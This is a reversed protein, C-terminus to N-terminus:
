IVVQMFGVASFYVDFYAISKISLIAAVMKLSLLTNNFAFDVVIM